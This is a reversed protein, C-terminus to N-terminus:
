IKDWDDTKLKLKFRRTTQGASKPSVVPLISTHYSHASMVSEEQPEPPPSGFFSVADKGCGWLTSTPHVEVQALISLVCLKCDNKRSNAGDLLIPLTPM